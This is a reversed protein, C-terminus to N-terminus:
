FPMEDETPGPGLDSSFPDDDPPAPSPPPPAKRPPSPAAERRPPAPTYDEGGQDRRSGLLTLNNTLVETITRDQGDKDQYKRTQLRGEIYVPRGKALYEGAIEATRDFCVINFWETQEEGSRKESVALSFRCVAKGSGQSYKVEPDKGLNGILIVRNVGAM